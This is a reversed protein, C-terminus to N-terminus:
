REPAEDLSEPVGPFYHPGDDKNADVMTGNTAPGQTYTVYSPNWTHQPVEQPAPISTSEVEKTAPEDVTPADQSILLNEKTEM